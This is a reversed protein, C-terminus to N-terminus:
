PTEDNKMGHAVFRVCVGHGYGHISLLGDQRWSIARGWWWAIEPAMTFGMAVDHCFGMVDTAALCLELLIYERRTSDNVPFHAM